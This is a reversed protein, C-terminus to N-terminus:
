RRDQWSDERVCQMKLITFGRVGKDKRRVREKKKRDEIECVCVWVWVTERVLANARLEGEAVFHGTGFVVFIEM